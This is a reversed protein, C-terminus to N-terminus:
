TAIPKRKPIIPQGKKVVATVPRQRPHILRRSIRAGKATAPSSQAM